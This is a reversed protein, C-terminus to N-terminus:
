AFIGETGWERATKSDTPFGGVARRTARALLETLSYTRPHGMWGEKTNLGM